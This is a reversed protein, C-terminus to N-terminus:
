RGREAPQANGGAMSQALVQEQGRPTRQGVSERTYTRNTQPPMSAGDAPAEADQAPPDMIQFLDRLDPQSAYKSKLSLWKNADFYIGQQQLLGLMPTLQNVVGDIFQLRAEPTQHRVSYPDVQVDLEDWPVEARKDPGIVRSISMDPLGGIQKTTRMDLTPHYKYYWVLGRVIDATHKVVADQKDMVSQSSNENLMKDQTATKSQPSLGGMIDLNDGFWSFLNKLETMLVFNAQNPGGFLIPKLGEANDCEIVHGDPTDRIREADEKAAATVAVIEKQRSGQNILKTLLGNVAEDLPMLDPIPAKPMAQGPVDGLGLMYFPGCDPGIWEQERLCRGDICPIPNGGGDSVFTLVAKHRPLYIEWLDVMDEIQERASYFGRQLVSLREDGEPNFQSDDTPSLDLRSRNYLKNARIMELPYRVRHGMYQCERFSGAHTDFVFDDLEIAWAMPTGGKISWGTLAAEEASALAVKVIGVSFMANLVSRKLVSALGMKQIAKNLWTEMADVTPKLKRNDITLMVRPDKAILNRSVIRIYLAALNLPRDAQQLSEESFAPGAYKKVNDFVSQRPFALVQRDERVADCIGPYNLKRKPAKRAVAM